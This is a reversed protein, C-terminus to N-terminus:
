HRSRGGGSSHSSGTRAPAPSASARAGPSYTPASASRAPSYERVNASRSPTFVRVEQVPRLTQQERRVKTIREPRGAMPHWYYRTQPSVSRYSTNNGGRSRGQTGSNGQSGDGSRTTGNDRSRPQSPASQPQASGGGTRTRPQDVTGNSPPTSNTNRTRDPPAPKANASSGSTSANAGGVSTGAGPQANPVTSGGGGYGERGYRTDGINRVRGNPSNNGQQYAYFPSYPYFPNYYYPSYLGNYYSSGWGYGAYFSYPNSYWSNWGFGFWMDSQWWWPSPTYWNDYWGYYTSPYGYYNNIITNGTTDYSYGSYTSDYYGPQSNGSYGYNGYSDGTTAFETYCGSMGAAIALTITLAFLKTRM